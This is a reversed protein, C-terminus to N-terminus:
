ARNALISDIDESRFGALQYAWNNLPYSSVGSNGLAVARIAEARQHIENIRNPGVLHHIWKNGIAVHTIEDLAIYAMVDASEADKSLLHEQLGSIAADIGISEGIRQHTALRLELSLGKQMSWLRLDCPYDGISAGLRSMQMICYEAHRCEDLIQIAMDSVFELPMARFELINEACTEITAIETGFLMFHFIAAVKSHRPIDAGRNRVALPLVEVGIERGPTVRELSSM